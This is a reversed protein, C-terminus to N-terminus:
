KLTEGQWKGTLTVLFATILRVDEDSLKRGLQYRGMIEVVEELTDVSGDHFYPPTVAVNRLGPVKFVHRDAELGTVNFRGLNAKSPDKDAFYNQVASFRHFMNGGINIGQHCSACGYDKFRQLGELEDQTLAERNGQLYSDFRSDPTILSREFTAIADAINAPTMGDEYIGEFVTRYERDTNLKAIIEQWNSGMETPNHVPGALQEELTAARGDWFQAFNFGSNFVTPTNFPGVTGAIGVSVPLRDTGGRNLDHCSACSISDDHSLRPDNFLRQGLSVKEAPLIVKAPLAQFQAPNFGRYTEAPLPPPEMRTNERKDDPHLPLLLYSVILLTALVGTFLYLYDKYRM